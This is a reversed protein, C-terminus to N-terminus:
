STLCTERHLQVAVAQSKWTVKVGRHQLESIFHEFLGSQRGLIEPAFVGKERIRGEAVAIAAIVNPFATTRAM